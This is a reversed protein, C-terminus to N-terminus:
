WFGDNVANASHETPLDISYQEGTRWVVKLQSIVDGNTVGAIYALRMDDPTLSEKVPLEWWTDCDNRGATPQKQFRRSNIDVTFRDVWYGSSNGMITIGDSDADFGLMGNGQATRGHLASQVGGYEAQIGKLAGADWWWQIGTMGGHQLYLAKDNFWDGTIMAGGILNCWYRLGPTPVLPTDPDSYKWFRTADLLQDLNTAYGGDETSLHFRRNNVFQDRQPKITSTPNTIGDDEADFEGSFSSDIADSVTWNYWTRGSGWDTGSRTSITVQDQRWQLARARDQAVKQSMKTLNDRLEIVSADPPDPYDGVLDHYHRAREALATLRITGFAVLLAVTNQPQNDDGGVGPVTPNVFANYFEGSDSYLTNLAAIRDNPSQPHNVRELTARLQDLKGRLDRIWVENEIKITIEALKAQLDDLPNTGDAPWLESCLFAAISGIDPIAGLGAIFGDRLVNNYSISM